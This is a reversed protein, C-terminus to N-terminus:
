PGPEEAACAVVVFRGEETHYSCTSLTLLRDGFSPVVGTEYLSVAKVQEVYEQFEEPDSLDTYQYYRFVDQDEQSFVQSYFVGVVQYDGEKELTDYQITLHEKGYKEQAYNMLGAFMSGDDMRHGYLIVHNGDPACGEGVFISGSVAYSGDFARRLYYEPDDPTYMVPYDIDTGPISIWGAMHPNEQALQAYAELRLSKEQADKGTESGEAREADQQSALLAEKRQSLAGYASRERSSRILDRAVMGGSVLLVVTCLM